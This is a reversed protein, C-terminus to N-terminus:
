LSLLNLGVGRNYVREVKEDEVMIMIELTPGVVGENFHGGTTKGTKDSFVGHCHIIVENKMWAINGTMSVVEVPYGVEYKLYEKKKLDYFSLSVFELAGIALFVGSKIKKDKVFKRFVEVVREGKEMRMLFGYNTKLYKM